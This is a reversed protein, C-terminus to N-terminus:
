NNTIGVNDTTDYNGEADKKRVVVTAFAYMSQSSRQIFGLEELKDSDVKIRDYIHKVSIRPLARPIRTNQHRYSLQAQERYAGIDKPLILM